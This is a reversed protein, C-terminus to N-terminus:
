NNFLGESMYRGRVDQFVFIYGDSVLYDSPHGHLDYNGYGSANYCTRNMLFPYTQTKDKPVYVITFLRIGDRMPIHYEFKDYHRRVFGTDRAPSQAFSQSAILLFCLIRVVHM